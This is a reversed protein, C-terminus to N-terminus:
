EPPPDKDLRWGLVREIAEDESSAILIFTTYSDLDRAEGYYADKGAETAKVALKFGKFVNDLSMRGNDDLSLVADAEGYASQVRGDLVAELKKSYILVTVRTGVGPSALRMPGRLVDETGVRELRNPWKRDIWYAVQDPDSFLCRPCM